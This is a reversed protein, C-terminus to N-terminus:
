PKRRRKGIPREPLAHLNVLVGVMGALVGLRSLLDACELLLLHSTGAGQGMAEHLQTAVLERLGHVHLVLFLLSFGALIALWANWRRIRRALRGHRWLAMAPLVGAVAGLGALDVGALRVEFPDIGSHELALRLPFLLSLLIALGALVSARQLM